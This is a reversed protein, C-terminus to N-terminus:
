LKAMNRRVRAQYARNLHPTRSHYNGVGVWFDPVRNIESRLRYAAVHVNTCSDNVLMQESIGYKRLEPLHITNIQAVGMDYSGNTNIKKLGNWGGETKLVARFVPLPLSYRSAAGAICQTLEPSPNRKSGRSGSRSTGAGVVTAPQTQQAALIADRQVIYTYITVNLCDDDALMRTTIGSAALAPVEKGPIAALGVEVEGNPLVRIEGNRGGRARVTALIRVGDARYHEAARAVCAQLDVPPLDGM